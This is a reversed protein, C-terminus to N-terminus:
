NESEVLEKIKELVLKWNGESHNREAESANNDQLVTLRIGDKEPLLEWTVKKYNEPTDPLGSMSSWYTSVFRREPTLELITGKDEYTKGKWEGRYTISSGAQWDSVVNTGFLYEKIIEPNILADWVKAAPANIIVSQKAILDKKMNM